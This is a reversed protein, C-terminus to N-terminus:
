PTGQEKLIRESAVAIQGLAIGGDNPPVRQHWYPRFGEERLRRVIRETLYRNQFCGGSLVIRNEGSRRAVEVATEALGNHFKAAIVPIGTRGEMDELLATVMPSWDLTWRPRPDDSGAARQRSGPTSSERIDFRYGGERDEGLAFELAMAAQGEYSCVQQLGTISAVADFLRGASTTYPANVGRELMTLLASLEERTFSRLPLIDGRAFVEPGLAEFLLGLAQRRPERIAKEGGPLPFRRLAAFREFSAGDTLLFEGGWITGDTGYGTGDWSIGLVTGRLGNEAMCSAIHAHHHQVTILPFGASQAFGTSLYDPHLDSVVRVPTVSFMSLM